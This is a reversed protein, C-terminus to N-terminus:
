SCHLGTAHRKDEYTSFSLGVPRSVTSGQRLYYCRVKQTDPVERGCLDLVKSNPAGEAEDGLDIRRYIGDWGTHKSKDSYHRVLFWNEDVVWDGLILWRKGGGDELVVRM